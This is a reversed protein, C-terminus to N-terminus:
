PFCEDFGPRLLFGRHFGCSLQSSKFHPTFGQLWAGASRLASTISLSCGLSSGSPRSCGLSSPSSSCSSHAPLSMWCSSCCGTGQTSASLTQGRWTMQALNVETQAPTRLAPMFINWMLLRLVRKSTDAVHSEPFFAPLLQFPFTENGLGASPMASIFRDCPQFTM